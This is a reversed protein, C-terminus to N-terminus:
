NFMIPMCIESPILNMLNKILQYLGASVGPVRFSSAPQMYPSSVGATLSLRSSGLVFMFEGGGGEGEEGILGVVMARVSHFIGGRGERM